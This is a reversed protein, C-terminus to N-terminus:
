SRDRVQSLGSVTYVDLLTTAADLAAQLPPLHASAEKAINLLTSSSGSTSKAGSRAEPRLSGNASPLPHNGSTTNPGAAQAASVQPTATTDQPSANSPRQPSSSALISEQISNHSPQAVQITNAPTGAAQLSSGPLLTSPKVTETSPRASPPKRSPPEPDSTCGLRTKVRRWMKM